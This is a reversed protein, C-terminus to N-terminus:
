APRAAVSWLWTMRANRWEGVTCARMANSLTQQRKRSNAALTVAKSLEGAIVVTRASTPERSLRALAWRPTVKVSNAASVPIELLVKDRCSVPWSLGLRSSSKGIASAWWTERSLSTPAGSPRSGRISGL